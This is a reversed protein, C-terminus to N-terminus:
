GSLGRYGKGARNGQGGMGVEQGQHEETRPCIFNALGLSWEEWHYMVLGDEAVHAALSVLEPPLEYQQEV